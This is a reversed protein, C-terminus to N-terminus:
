DDLIPIPMSLKNFEDFLAYGSRNNVFLLFMGEDMLNQISTSIEEMKTIPGYSLSDTVLMFNMNDYNDLIDFLIAELQGFFTIDYRDIRSRFFTSIIEKGKVESKAGVVLSNFIKDGQDFVKNLEIEYYKNLKFFEICARVLETESMWSSRHENLRGFFLKPSLM